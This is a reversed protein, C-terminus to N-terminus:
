MKRIREAPFMNDLVCLFFFWVRQMMRLIYNVSVRIDVHAANRIFVLNGIEYLIEIYVHPSRARAFSATINIRYAAITVRFLKTPIM